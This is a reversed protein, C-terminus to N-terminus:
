QRARPDAIIRSPTGYLVLVKDGTNFAPDPGQVITMMNGNYTEVVYEYGTQKTANAEIAAGALAGAVAGVIAGAAHDRGSGGLSSGGVAGLAAGSTGGVGSTGSIAVPRASVVTAPVTRNVQGVSGVAYSQPSINPAACGVSLLIVATASFIKIANM